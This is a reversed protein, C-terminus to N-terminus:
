AATSNSIKCHIRGLTNGAPASKASRPPYRDPRCFAQRGTPCSYSNLEHPIMESREKFFGAKVCFDPNEVVIVVQPSANDAREFVFPKALIAIGNGPVTVIALRFHFSSLAPHRGLPRSASSRLRGRNCRGRTSLHSTCHPPIKVSANLLPAQKMVAHFRARALMAFGVDTWERAAAYHGNVRLGPFNGATATRPRRAIEGTHNATSRPAKFRLPRALSTRWTASSFGSPWCTSIRV